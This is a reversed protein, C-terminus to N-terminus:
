LGLKGGDSSGLTLLKGDTTIAAIHDKGCAVQRFLAGDKEEFVTPSGLPTKFDHGQGDLMSGDRTSGWVVLQGDETVIATKQHFADIQKVPVDDLEPIATPKPVSQVSNSDLGLGLQGQNSAGWAFM